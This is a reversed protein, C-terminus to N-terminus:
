FINNKGFNKQFNYIYIILTFKFNLLKIMQFNSLLKDSREHSEGELLFTEVVQSRQLTRSNSVLASSFNKPFIM